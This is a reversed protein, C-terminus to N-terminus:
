AWPNHTEDVDLEPYTKVEIRTFPPPALESVVQIETTEAATQSTLGGGSSGGASADPPQSRIKVNTEDPVEDNTTKKTDRKEEVEVEKEEGESDEIVYQQRYVKRLGSGRVAPEGRQRERAMAEEAAKPDEVVLDVADPQKTLSETRSRPPTHVSRGPSGSSSAPTSNAPPEEKLNGKLPSPQIPSVSPSRDGKAPPRLNGHRTWKLKVGDAHFDPLRDDDRNIMLERDDGTHIKPATAKQKGKSPGIASNFSQNRSRAAPRQLNDSAGYERQAFYLRREEHRPSFFAGRENSLIREEEDWIRHRASEHSVDIVPYKYDGFVYHKSNAYLNEDSNNPSGFYLSYGNGKNHNLTPFEDDDSSNGALDPADHLIDDLQDDLLPAYVEDHEDHPLSHGVRTAARTPEADHAPMPLWYKKRGGQAYRLGARIRRERAAGQHMFGEAPEFQKYDMGEGALTVKTDEYVDRMGFADRFAFAVPMRAAYTSAYDIYDTHSFAYQHGIAFGIM